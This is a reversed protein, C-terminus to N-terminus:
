KIWLRPIFIIRFIPIIYTNVHCNMPHWWPFVKYSFLFYNSKWNNMQERKSEMLKYLYHKNKKKKAPLILLSVRVNKRLIDVLYSIGSEFSDFNHQTHHTLSSFVVFTVLSALHSFLYCFRLIPVYMSSLNLSLWWRWYKLKHNKIKKWLNIKGLLLRPNFVIWSM